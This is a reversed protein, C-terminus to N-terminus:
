SSFSKKWFVLLTNIDVAIFDKSLYDKIWKIFLFIGKKQKHNLLHYINSKSSVLVQEEDKELTSSYIQGGISIEESEEQSFDLFEIFREISQIDDPYKIIDHILFPLFECINEPSFMILNERLELCEEHSLKMNKDVPFYSLVAEAVREREQTYNYNYQRKM